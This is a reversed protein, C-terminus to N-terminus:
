KVTVKVVAKKGSATKVTIKCKGKKVAKVVGKKTVKAVKKNSSKFIVKETANAPKLKAKLKVKKGKKQAKKEEQDSLIGEKELTEDTNQVTENQETAIENKIEDSM